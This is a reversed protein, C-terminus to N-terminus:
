SRALPMTTMVDAPDAARALEFQEAAALFDNQQSLEDGETFHLRRRDAPTSPERIELKWFTKSFAAHQWGLTTALLRYHGASILGGDARAVDCESKIADEPWLTIV